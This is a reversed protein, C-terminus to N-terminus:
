YLPQSRRQEPINRLSSYYRNVLTEFCGILGFYDEKIAKGKVVSRITKGFRQCSVVLRREM